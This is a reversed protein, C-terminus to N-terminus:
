DNLNSILLLCPMDLNLLVLILKVLKVGVKEKLRETFELYKKKVMGSYTEPDRLQSDDEHKESQITIDSITKKPLVESNKLDCVKELSNNQKDCNAEILNESQDSTRESKKQLLDKSQSDSSDSHLVKDSQGIDSESELLHESKSNIDKGSHSRCKKCSEPQSKTCTCELINSDGSEDLTKWKM